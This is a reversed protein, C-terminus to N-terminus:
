PVSFSDVLLLPWFASTLNVDRQSLLTTGVAKVMMLRQVQDLRWFCPPPPLHVYWYLIQVLTVFSQWCGLLGIPLFGCEETPIADPHDSGRQLEELTGCACGTIWLPAWSLGMYKLIKVRCPSHGVYTNHNGKGFLFSSFLTLAACSLSVMIDVNLILSTCFPQPSLLSLFLM